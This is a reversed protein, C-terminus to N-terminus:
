EETESLWSRLLAAVTEPEERALREVESAIERRRLEEVTPVPKEIVPIEREVVEEPRIVARLFLWRVVLFGLVVLVPQLIQWMPQQVWEWATPAAMAGTELGKLDFPADFIMVDEPTIFGVASAVLSRYTTLLEPTPPVYERDGEQAGEGTRQQYTGEVVATVQAKLPTGPTTAKTTRTRPVEFNEITDDTTEETTTTMPGSGQPLNSLAGPPGEPLSEQSTLTSTTTQTSIPVGKGIEEKEESFSANDLVMAVQVVSRVGLALLAREAEEERKQEWNLQHEQQSAAIREFGDMAPLHLAVGETTMLTINDATLFPGGFNGVIGLIGKIQTKSPQRSVKLTVAAEWPKQEDVFLQEKSPTIRVLAQDVFDLSMLMRTLAGEVAREYNVDQQFRTALLPNTDDFLEFGKVQIPGKPLGADSVALLAEGKRQAPVQITKNNDRIKFPVNKETLLDRMATVDQPSLEMDPYLSVYNPQAGMILLTLVVGITALFAIALNVRASLSLRRWADSVGIGLQRFFERLTEM